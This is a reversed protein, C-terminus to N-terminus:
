HIHKSKDIIIREGRKICFAIFGLELLIYTYYVFEGGSGFGYSHLGTGLIYNVGYWTFSIALLGFISGIALGHPGIKGFRYAHIILLYVCSSIFAWSEKPDWDWFRGWSQAAWVGGLITGPILLAVGVYLSQLLAKEMKPSKKLLCIHGLIGGLILAGYSAVIMLVHVTLWFQSNLVAQVNDLKYATFTWQLVTLLCASIGAGAIVPLNTALSRSLFISLIVAIWPVYIITEAMGSVPPRMLIYSRMVLILTHLALAICLIIWGLPKLRSFAEGLFFFLVAALYAVIAYNTLPQKSFWVEAKLQFISPFTLFTTKSLPYSKEALRAYATLYTEAFFSKNGTLYADKLGSWERDTFLTPNTPLDSLNQLPLWQDPHRKSPLMKLKAFDAKDEIVEYPRFRGMENVPLFSTDDGYLRTFLFILFLLQLM